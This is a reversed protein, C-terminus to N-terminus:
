SRTRGTAETERPIAGLSVDKSDGTMLKQVQVQARISEIIRAALMAVAKARQVTTKGSRLGNIEDFLADRLGESTAAVAPLTVDENKL